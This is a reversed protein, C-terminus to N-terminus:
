WGSEATVHEVFLEKQIRFFEHFHFVVLKEGSMMRSGTLSRLPKRMHFRTNFARENTNWSDSTSHLGQSPLLHPRENWCNQNRRRRLGAANLFFMIIHSHFVKWWGKPAVIGVRHPMRRRIYESVCRGKWRGQCSNITEVEILKTKVIEECHKSASSGRPHPWIPM